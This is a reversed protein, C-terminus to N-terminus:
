GGFSFNKKVVDTEEMMFWSKQRQYLSKGSIGVGKKGVMDWKTNLIM